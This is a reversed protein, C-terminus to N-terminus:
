WQTQVVRIQLVLHTVLGIHNCIDEFELIGRLTGCEVCVYVVIRFIDLFILFMCAVDFAYLFFSLTM